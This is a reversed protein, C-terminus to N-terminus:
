CRSTRPWAVTQSSATSIAPSIPLRRAPSSQARQMAPEKSTILAVDSGLIEGGSVYVSSFVGVMTKQSALLGVAGLLVAILTRGRGGTAPV